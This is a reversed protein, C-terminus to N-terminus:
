MLLARSERYSRDWSGDAVVENRKLIALLLAEEKSQALVMVQFLGTELGDWENFLIEYHHEIVSLDDPLGDPIFIGIPDLADRTLIVYYSFTLQSTM